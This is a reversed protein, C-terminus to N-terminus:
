NMVKYIAQGDGAAALYFRTLGEYAPRLYRDRAEQPPRRAWHVADQVDAAAMRSLDYRGAIRDFPTSALHDAAAKVRDPALYIVDMGLEAAGDETLLRGGCVADAEPPRGDWADGTLLYHLGQWAGGVDFMQGPHHRRRWDAAGFVLRAIRGPDPEGELSPPLRLYSMALGM